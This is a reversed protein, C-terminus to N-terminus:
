IQEDAPLGKNIKKMKRLINKYTTWSGYTVIGLMIAYVWWPVNKGAIILYVYASVFFGVSTIAPLVISKDRRFNRILWAVSLTFLPIAGVYISGFIIPNVGYANGLGFFWERAVDILEAMPIEEKVNPADSLAIYFKRVYESDGILPKM